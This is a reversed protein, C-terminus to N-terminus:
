AHRMENAVDNIIDELSREPQWNLLKKIKATDPSRRMMDEFGRAYAQEYPVLEIKSASNLVEIVKQALQMM